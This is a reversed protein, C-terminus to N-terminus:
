QKITIRFRVNNVENDHLTADTIKQCKIYLGDPSQSEYDPILVFLATTTAGEFPTTDFFVKASDFLGTKQFAYGGETVYAMTIGGDAGLWSVVPADTDTQSVLYGEYILASDGASSKGGTYTELFTTMTEETAAVGGIECESLLMGNNPLDTSPASQMGNLRVVPDPTTGLIFGTVKSKAGNYNADPRNSDSVYIYNGSETFNYAM